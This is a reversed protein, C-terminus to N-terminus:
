RMEEETLSLNKNTAGRIKFSGTVQYNELKLWVDGGCIDSLGISYEMPTRRAWRRIRKQAEYIQSLRLM